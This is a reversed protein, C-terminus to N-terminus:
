FPSFEDSKTSCREYEDDTVASPVAIEEIHTPQSESTEWERLGFTGPAPRSFIQEQRVYRSLVGALSNKASVTAEVGLRAMIEDIHLPRGTDGLVQIVREAQSGTRVPGHRAVGSSDPSPAGNMVNYIEEYHRLADELRDARQRAKRLEDRKRQLFAEAAAMNTINAM